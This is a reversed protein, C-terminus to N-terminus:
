PAEKVHANEQRPQRASGVRHLIYSIVALSGCRYSTLHPNDASFPNGGFERDLDALVAGGTPSDAFDRWTQDMADSM